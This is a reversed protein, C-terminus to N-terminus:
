SKPKQNQKDKKKLYSVNKLAFNQQEEQEAKQREVLNRQSDADIVPDKKNEKSKLQTVAILYNIGNSQARCGFSFFLATFFIFVKTKM